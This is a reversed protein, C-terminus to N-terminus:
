LKMCDDPSYQYEVKNNGVFQISLMEYWYGKVIGIMGRRDPSKTEIQEITVEGTLDNYTHRDSVNTKPEGMIRVKCGIPFDEKKSSGKKSGLELLRILSDRTSQIENEYM